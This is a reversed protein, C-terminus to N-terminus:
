RSESPDPLGSGRGEHRGEQGQGGRKQFRNAGSGYALDEARLDVLLEEAVQIVGGTAPVSVCVILVALMSHLSKKCM